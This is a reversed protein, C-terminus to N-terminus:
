SSAPAVANRVRQRGGKIVSASRVRASAPGGENYQPPLWGWGRASLRPQIELCFRFHHPRGLAAQCASPARPDIIRWCASQIPPSFLACLRGSVVSRYDKWIRFAAQTCREAHSGFRQIESLGPADTKWIVALTSPSSLGARNPKWLNSRFILQWPRSSM